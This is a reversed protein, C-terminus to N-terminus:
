RLHAYFFVVVFRSNALPSGRKGLSTESFAHIVVVSEGDDGGLM